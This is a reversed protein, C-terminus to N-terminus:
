IWLNSEMSTVSLWSLVQKETGNSPIWDKGLGTLDGTETGGFTRVARLGCRCTAQRLRTPQAM